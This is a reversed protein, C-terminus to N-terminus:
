TMFKRPPIRRCNVELPWNCSSNIRTDQSREYDRVFEPGLSAVLDAKMAKKNADVQTRLEPTNIDGYNYIYDRYKKRVDFLGEYQERTLTMGQLDHSLQM